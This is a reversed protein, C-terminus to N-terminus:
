KFRAGGETFVNWEQLPISLYPQLQLSSTPKTVHPGAIILIVSIRPCVGRMMHFGSYQQCHPRRPLQIDTQHAALGKPM